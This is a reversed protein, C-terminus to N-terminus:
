EMFGPFYVEPYLRYDAIVTIIGKSALAQGLFLYQEKHGSQWSGGYFFVVVPRSRALTDPVYIDLKQRPNRGYAIDHSVSYGSHPTLFNLVDTGSCASLALAIGLMLYTRLYPMYQRSSAHYDAM